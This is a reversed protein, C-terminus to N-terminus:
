ISHALTKLSPFPQPATHIKNSALFNGWSFDLSIPHFMQSKQVYQTQLNKVKWSLPIETKSTKPPSFRLNLTTALTVQPCTDAVLLPRPPPPPSISFYRGFTMDVLLLTHKLSETNKKQPPLPTTQTFSSSWILKLVLPNNEQFIMAIQTFSRLCRYVGNWPWVFPPDKSPKCRKWAKCSKRMRCRSRFHPPGVSLPRLPKLKLSPDHHIMKSWWKNVRYILPWQIMM